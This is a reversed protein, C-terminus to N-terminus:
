WLIVITINKFTFFIFIIKTIDAEIKDVIEMIRVSIESEPDKTVILTRM